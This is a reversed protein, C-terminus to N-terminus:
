SFCRRPKQLSSTSCCFWGVSGISGVSGVSGVSPTPNTTLKDHADRMVPPRFKRSLHRADKMYYYRTFM